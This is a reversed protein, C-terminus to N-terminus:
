RLVMEMSVDSRAYPSAKVQEAPIHRFGVSEYLHIANPLKSNTDLHLRCAAIGKAEAIIAELIMRGIGKGQYGDTVAMKTVEYECPGTPMLACCGVTEDGVTAFLIEGGPNLIYKMPDGLVERDKAELV